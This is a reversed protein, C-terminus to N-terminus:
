GVTIDVAHADWGNHGYGRHNPAFERPQTEGSATTARSAVRHTGAELEATLLFPRWAYPGMDPGVFRAAQWSEGGDTSVEVGELTETGGMAVGWIQVRGSETEMLPHTVWSKVVMEYMSPQDPAGSEGVPRVRYGSQQISAETETEDFSVRKVHKINNVGFYGPIVMRVPGGHARPIPEGNMEFALMAREMAEIPVSREVIVTAPDIGEPITEGGTSTMFSKGDAVGGMEEVLAAVPVGTWQVNAAAGVSWQSGSTEHEFFARGNGSCQLVCTVTDPARQRLEALTIPGGEAVGEIAVEWAEPDGIEEETLSPLNNRVFVLDNPTLASLGIEGRRTELTQESHRIFADAEKWAAYDPLGGTGGGEQALAPLGTSSLLTAGATGVLFHRRNVHARDSM